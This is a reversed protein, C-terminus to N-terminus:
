QLSDSMTFDDEAKEIGGSGDFSSTEITFATAFGKKVFQYCWPSILSCTTTMMALKYIVQSHFQCFELFEDKTKCLFGFALSPDMDEFSIKQPVKCHYNQLVEISVEKDTRIATRVLHPDLYIVYDDQYGVFYLSKNPKGGIMGLTFPNELCAKVHPLYIKNIHELGLRVPILIFIPRWTMERSSSHSTMNLSSGNNKPNRSANINNNTNFTSTEPNFNQKALPHNFPVPQLKLTGRELENQSNNIKLCQQQTEYNDSPELRQSIDNRKEFDGSNQQKAECRFSEEAFETQKLNFHGLPDDSENQLQDTDDSFSHVTTKSPIPIPVSSSLNIRFNQFESQPSKIKSNELSAKTCECLKFVKDKYIVGNRPVYMTLGKPSHLKVLYELVLAIETPAFWRNRKEEENINDTSNNNTERPSVVRHNQRENCVINHREVINHLSFPYRSSPADTFWRLIKRYESYPGLNKNKRQESNVRGFHLVMLCEALIMQGTRLMCGWGFDSTVCYGGHQVHPFDKRYTFWVINAFDELFQQVHPYYKSKEGSLADEKSQSIEYKRGLLWIPTRNFAPPETPPAHYLNYFPSLMRNRWNILKDRNRTKENKTPSDSTHSSKNLQSEELDRNVVKEWDKELDNDFKSSILNWNNQLDDDNESM